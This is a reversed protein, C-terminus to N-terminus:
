FEGELIQKISEIRAWEYKFSIRGSNKLNMLISNKNISYTDIFNDFSLNMIELDKIGIFSLVIFISEAQNCFKYKIELIPDRNSISVNYIEIADCTLDLGNLAM